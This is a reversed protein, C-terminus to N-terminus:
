LFSVSYNFFCLPSFDQKKNEVERERKIERDASMCLVCNVTNTSKVTLLGRKMAEVPLRLSERVSVRLHEWKLDRERKRRTRWESYFLNKFLQLRPALLALPPVSHYVLGGSM